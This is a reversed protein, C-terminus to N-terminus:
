HQCKRQSKKHLDATTDMNMNGMQVKWVLGRCEEEKLVIEVTTKERGTGQSDIM